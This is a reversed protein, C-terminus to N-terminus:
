PPGRSKKKLKGGEFQISYTYFLHKKLMIKWFVRIYIEGLDSEGFWVMPNWMLFVVWLINNVLRPAILSIMVVVVNQAEELAGQVHIFM